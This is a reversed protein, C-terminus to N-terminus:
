PSTEDEPIKDDTEDQPNWNDDLYGSGTMMQPSTTTPADEAVRGMPAITASEPRKWILVAIGIAAALLLLLTGIAIYLWPNTGKQAQEPTIATQSQGLLVIPEPTPTPEVTTKPDKDQILEALSRIPQVSPPTPTPTPYPTATGLTLEPTATPEPPVATPTPETGPRAPRPTVNIFLLNEDEVTNPPTPRPTAPADRNTYLFTFSADEVKTKDGRYLQLVTEYEATGGDHEWWPVIGSLNFEGRGDSQPPSQFIIAPGRGDSRQINVSYGGHYPELGQASITVTDEAQGRPPNIDLSIIPSQVSGAVELEVGALTVKTPIDKGPPRPQHRIIHDFEWLSVSSVRRRKCHYECDGITIEIKYTADHERPFQEGRIVLKDLRRVVGSNLLSVQPPLLDIETSARADLDTVVSLQNAGSDVGGQQANLVYYRVMQTQPGETPTRMAFRFLSDQGNPSLDVCDTPRGGEDLLTIPLPGVNAQCIKAGPLGSVEALGEENIRLGRAPRRLVINPERIEVNFTFQCAAEYIAALDDNRDAVIETCTRDSSKDPSRAWLQINTTGQLDPPLMVQLIQNDQHWNEWTTPRNDVPGALRRGGITIDEIILSEETYGDSTTPVAEYGNILIRVIVGASPNNDNKALEASMGVVFRARYHGREADSTVIGGGGKACVHYLGVRSHKGDNTHVQAAANIEDAFVRNSPIRIGSQLLNACSEFAPGPSSGTIQRDSYGGDHFTHIEVNTYPVHGYAQVNVQQGYQHFSLRQNALAVIPATLSDTETEDPTLEQTPSTTTTYARVDRHDTLGQNEWEITFIVREDPERTAQRPMNLGPISIVFEIIRPQAIHCGDYPVFGQENEDVWDECGPINLTLADGRRNVSIPEQGNDIQYIGIGSTTTFTVTGSNNSAQCGPQNFVELVYRTGPTLNYIRELRRAAPVTICPPRENPIQQHYSWEGRILPGPSLTISTASVSFVSVLTEPQVVVPPRRGQGLSTNDVEADLIIIAVDASIDTLTANLTGLDGIQFDGQLRVTIDGEPITNVGASTGPLPCNMPRGFKGTAVKLRIENIPAGAKLQEPSLQAVASCEELEIKQDETFLQITRDVIILQNGYPDTQDQGPDWQLEVRIAHETKNSGIKAPVTFEVTQHGLTQVIRVKLYDATGPRATETGSQGYVLNNNLKVAKLTADIPYLNRTRVKMLEGVVASRPTFTLYPTGALQGPPRISAIGEPTTPLAKIAGSVTINQQGDMYVASVQLTRNVTPKNGVRSPMIFRIQSTGLNDTATAEYASGRAMVVGDIRFEKLTIGAPLDVAVADVTTSLLASEAMLLSANVQYVFTVIAPHQGTQYHGPRGFNSWGDLEACITNENPRLHSASTLKSPDVEVQGATGQAMLRPPGGNKYGQCYHIKMGRDAAVGHMSVTFKEVSNNPGDVVIQVTTLYLTMVSTLNSGDPAQWHLIITRSVTETSEDVHLQLPPVMFTGDPTSFADTPYEQNEWEMKTLLSGAPLDANHMMIPTGPPSAEAATNGTSTATMFFTSAIGLAPTPQGMENLSRVCVQNDGTNWVTSAMFEFIVLGSSPITQPATLRRADQQHPLPGHCQGAPADDLYAVLQKAEPPWERKITLRIETNRPGRKPSINTVDGPLGTTTGYAILMGDSAGACIDVEGPTGYILPSIDITAKGNEDTEGRALVFGGSCTKAANQQDYKYVTFPTSPKADTINAEITDSGQNLQPPFEITGVIRLKANATWHHLDDNEIWSMCPHYEGHLLTTSPPLQKTTRHETGNEPPYPQTRGLHFPLTGNFEHTVCGKTRDDETQISEVPILYVQYGDPSGPTAGVSATIVDGARAYAPDFSVSPELTPDQLNGVALAVTTAFIALLSAALAATIKRRASLAIDILM